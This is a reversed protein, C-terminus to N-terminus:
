LERQWNSVVSTPCIVLAPQTSVKSQSRAHLLLAITQPTKGLGMDDALIGGLGWQRLFALCAVRASQYHRLFGEFTQPAQLKQVKAGNELQHLLAGIWGDASVETIPLGTDTK